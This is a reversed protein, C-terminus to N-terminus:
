CATLIVLNPHNLIAKSQKSENKKFV